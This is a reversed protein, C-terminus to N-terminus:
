RTDLSSMVCSMWYSVSCRSATTFQVLTVGGPPVQCASRVGTLNVTQRVPGSTASKQQEASFKWTCMHSCM